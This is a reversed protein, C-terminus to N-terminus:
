QKDMRVCSGHSLACIFFIERLASFNFIFQCKGNIKKKAPLSYSNCNWMCIHISIHIHMHTYTYAFPSHMVFIDGAWHLLLPFALLCANFMSYLLPQNTPLSCTHLVLTLGASHAAIGLTLVFISIIGRLFLFFVFLLVLLLMCMYFPMFACMKRYCLTQARWFLFFYFCCIWFFFVILCTFCCAAPRLLCIPYYILYFNIQVATLRGVARERLSYSSNSSHFQASPVSTAARRCVLIRASTWQICLVTKHSRFYCCCCLLLLSFTSIKLKLCIQKKATSIKM